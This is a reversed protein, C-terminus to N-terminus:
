RAHYLTPYVHSKASANHSGCRTHLSFTLRSSLLRKWVTDHIVEYAEKVTKVGKVLPHYENYLTDRWGDVLLETEFRYPLIYRCFIDFNVESKWPSEQWVKFAKDINQILFNAKLYKLDSKFVPKDNTKLANWWENMPEMLLLTDSSYVKQRFTDIAESWISGHKPMNEILFLAAKLKLSDKNDTNQYHDIVKLLELRNDNAKNLVNDLTNKNKCSYLMCLLIIITEFFIIKNM